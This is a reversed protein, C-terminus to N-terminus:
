AAAILKGKAALYPALIETYWGGGPWLEM